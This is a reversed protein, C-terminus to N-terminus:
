PVIRLYSYKIYGTTPPHHLSVFGRKDADMEDTQYGMPNDHPLSQMEHVEDISTTTKVSIKKEEACRM